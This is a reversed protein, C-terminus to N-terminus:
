GTKPKDTKNEARYRNAVAADQVQNAFVKRQDNSLLSWDKLETPLFFDQVTVTKGLLRTFANALRDLTDYTFGKNNELRRVTTHDLPPRCEDALARQSIDLVDSRLHHITSGPPETIDYTYVSPRSRMNNHDGRASSTALAHVEGSIKILRKSFDVSIVNSRYPVASM